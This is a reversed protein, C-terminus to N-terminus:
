YGWETYYCENSDETFDHLSLLHAEQENGDTLKKYGELRCEDSCYYDDGAVYGAIMFQGCESCVRLGYEDYTDLESVFSEKQKGNLTLVWDTAWNLFDYVSMKEPDKPANENNDRVFQMVKNFSNNFIIKSVKEKIVKNIETKM